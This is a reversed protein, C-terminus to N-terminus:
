KCSVYHLTDLKELGFVFCKFHGLTPSGLGYTIQFIWADQGNYKAREAYTPLVYEGTLSSGSLSIIRDFTKSDEGLISAQQRMYDNLAKKVEESYNNGSYASAINKLSVTDPFFDNFSDQSYNMNSVKVVPKVPISDNAETSSDSCGTFSLFSFSALFISLCYFCTKMKFAKM